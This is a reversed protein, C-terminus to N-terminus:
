KESEDRSKRKCGGFIRFNKVLNWKTTEQPIPFKEQRKLSSRFCHSFTIIAFSLFSTWERDHSLNRSSVLKLAVLRKQRSFFRTVSSVFSPPQLFFFWFLFFCAPWFIDFFLWAPFCNLVRLLDCQLRSEHTQHDFRSLSLSISNVFFYQCSKKKVIEFCLARNMLFSTPSPGLFRALPAM